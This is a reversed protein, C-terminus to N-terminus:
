CREADGEPAVTGQSILCSVSRLSGNIAFDYTGTM